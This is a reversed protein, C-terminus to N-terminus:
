VLHQFYTRAFLSNATAMGGQDFEAFSLQFPLLGQSDRNFAAILFHLRLRQAAISRSMTSLQQWQRGSRPQLRVYLWLSFLESLEIIDWCEYCVNMHVWLWQRMRPM